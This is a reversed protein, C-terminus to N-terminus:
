TPYVSLATSKLPEGYCRFNSRSSIEDAESHVAARGAEVTLLDDLGVIKSSLFEVILRVTLKVM